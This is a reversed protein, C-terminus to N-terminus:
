QIEVGIRILMFVAGLFDMLGMTVQFIEKAQFPVNWVFLGSWSAVAGYISFLATVFLLSMGVTRLKPNQPRLAALSGIILLGMVVYLILIQGTSVDGAIGPAFLATALYALAWAILWAHIVVKVTETKTM